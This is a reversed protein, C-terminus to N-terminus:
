FGLKALERFRISFLPSTHFFLFNLYEENPLQFPPIPDVLLEKQQKSEEAVPPFPKIKLITDNGLIFTFLERKLISEKYDCQM